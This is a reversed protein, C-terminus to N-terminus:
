RQRCSRIRPAEPQRRRGLFAVLRDSPDASSVAIPAAFQPFRTKDTVTHEVVELTDRALEAPIPEASGCSQGIDWGHVGIEIAGVVVVVEAALPRDVITIERSGSHRTSCYTLLRHANYRLSAIPDATSPVATGLGVHGTEIAEVLASTSDSLHELLRRLNWESCPTPRSLLEPTVSDTVGLTYSIASHLLDTADGYM